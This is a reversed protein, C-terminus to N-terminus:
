LYIKSQTKATKITTPIGVAINAITIGAALETPMRLKILIDTPTVYPHKAIIYGM